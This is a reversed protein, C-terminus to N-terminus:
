PALRYHLARFFARDPEAIHNWTPHSGASMLQDPENLSLLAGDGFPGTLLPMDLNSGNDAIGRFFFGATGDTWETFTADISFPAVQFEGLAADYSGLLPMGAKDRLPFDYISAQHLDGAFLNGLQNDAGIRPNPIGNVAGLGHMMEHRLLGANDANETVNFNVAFDYGNGATDAPGDPDPEGLVIKRWAPVVLVEKGEFTAPWYEVNTDAYGPNDDTLYVEITASWNGSTRLAAGVEAFLATVMDKAPQNGEWASGVEYLPVFTVSGLTETPGSGGAGGNGANGSAGASGSAGGGGSTAGGAGSGGSAGAVNGGSGGSGSAGSSGALSASGGGAENAPGDAGCAPLLALLALVGGIRNCSKM